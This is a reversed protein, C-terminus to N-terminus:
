NVREKKIEKYEKINVDYAEDYIYGDSDILQYNESDDSYSYYFDKKGIRVIERKVM